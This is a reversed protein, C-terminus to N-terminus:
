RNVAQGRPSQPGAQDNPQCEAAHDDTPQSEGAGGTTEAGSGSSDSRDHGQRRPQDGNGIAPQIQSDGVTAGASAVSYNSACRSDHQPQDRQRKAPQGQGTTAVRNRVIAALEFARLM